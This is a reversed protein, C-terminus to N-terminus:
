KEHLQRRLEKLEEEQQFITLALGKRSTEGLREHVLDGHEDKLDNVNKLIGDKDKTVRKTKASDSGYDTIRRQHPDFKSRRGGRQGGRQFSPFNKGGRKYGHSDQNEFQRSGGRRPPSRRPPPSRRQPPSRRPPSRGHDSYRHSGNRRRDGYRDGGRRDHRNEQERSYFRPPTRDRERTYYDGKTVLLGRKSKDDKKDDKSDDEKRDSADKKSSKKTFSNHIDRKKLEPSREEEDQDAKEILDEEAKTYRKRKRASSPTSLDTTVRRIDKHTSKSPPTQKEKEKVPTKFPTPLTSMQSLNKMDEVDGFLPHEAQRSFKQFRLNSNTVRGEFAKVPFPDDMIDTLLNPDDKKFIGIKTQFVAKYLFPSDKPALKNMKEAKEYVEAAQQRMLASMGQRCKVDGAAIIRGRFKEADGISNFCIMLRFKDPDEKNDKNPLKKAKFDCILIDSLYTKIISLAYKQVNEPSKGFHKLTKEQRDWLVINHKEKFMNEVDRVMEKQKRKVLEHLRDIEKNLDAIANVSMVQNVKLTDVDNRVSQLDRKTEKQADEFRGGMDAVSKILIDMKEGLGEPRSKETVYQSDTDMESIRQGPEFPFVFSDEFNNLNTKGFTAELDAQQAFTDNLRTEELEQNAAFDSTAPWTM